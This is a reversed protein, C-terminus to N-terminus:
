AECEFGSMAALVLKGSPLDTGVVSTVHDKRWAHADAIVHQSPWEGSGDIASGGNMFGKAGRTSPFKIESVAIDLVAGGTNVASVDKLITNACDGDVLPRFGVDSQKLPSGFVKSNLAAM